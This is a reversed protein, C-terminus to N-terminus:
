SIIGPIEARKGCYQRLTSDMRNLRPCWNPIPRPGWGSRLQVCSTATQCCMYDEEEKKVFMLKANPCHCCDEILVAVQNKKADAM